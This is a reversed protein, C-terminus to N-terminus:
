RSSKRKTYKRKTAKRKSTKRKSVAKRKSLKRKPKKSSKRKSARKKTKTAKLQGISVPNKLNGKYYGDHELANNMIRIEELIARKRKASNKWGNLGHEIYSESLLIAKKLYKKAVKNGIRLVYQVIGVAFLTENEETKNEIYDFASKIAKGSNIQNLVFDSDENKSDINKGFQSLLDMVGDCDYSWESFVGM